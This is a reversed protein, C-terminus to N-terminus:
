QPMPGCMITGNPSLGIMMWYHAPQDPRPCKQESFQPLTSCAGFMCWQQTCRGSARDFTGGYMGCLFGQDSENAYCRWVRNPDSPPVTSAAGPVVRIPVRAIRNTTTEAVGQVTYLIHVYALKDSMSTNPGDALLQLGTVTLQSSGSGIVTGAQVVLYTSGDSRVGVISPFSSPSTISTPIVVNRLSATCGIQGRLAVAALTELEQKNMLQIILKQQNVISSFLQASGLTVIALIAVTVLLEVLSFGVSRRWLPKFRSSPGSHPRKLHSDM